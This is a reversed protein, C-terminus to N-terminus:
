EATIPQARQTGTPRTIKCEKVLTNLLNVVVVAFGTENVKIVDKWRPQLHQVTM